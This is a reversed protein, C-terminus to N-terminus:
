NLHGGVNCCAGLYIGSDALSTTMEITDGSYTYKASETNLTRGRGGQILAIESDGAVGAGDVLTELTVNSLATTESSLTYIEISSLRASGYGGPIFGVETTSTASTYGRAVTLTGASSVVDGSYEYKSITNIPGYGGAFISYDVHGFGMQYDIAAAVGISTGASMTSTAYAYRDSAAGKGAEGGIFLAVDHGGAGAATARGVSLDSTVTIAKNAYRYEETEKVSTNGSTWVGKENNGAASPSQHAANWLSQSLEVTDDVLNYQNINLNTQSGSTLVVSPAPFVYQDKASFSLTEFDVWEPTGANADWIFLQDNATDFWSLGHYKISPELSQTVDPGGGTGSSSASYKSGPPTFPATWRATTSLRFGEMWGGIHFSGYRSGITTRTGLHIEVAAQSTIDQTHYLAGNLFVLANTGYKVVAIHNWVTSDFASQALTWVAGLQSQINVNGVGSAGLAVSFNGDSWLIRQTSASASDSKFWFDCTFDNTGFTIGNPDFDFDSSGDFYVSTSPFKYDTDTNLITGNFPLSLTPDVANIFPLTSQLLFITDSDEGLRISNPVSISM